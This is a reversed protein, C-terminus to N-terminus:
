VGGGQPSPNPHPYGFELTNRIYHMVGESNAVVDNNWYRLVKFDHRRLYADCREDARRGNDANHQGGDIEIVLRASFRVFDVILHDIPAQRRFHFGSEKLTRLHIWLKREANTQNSRLKRARQNAM